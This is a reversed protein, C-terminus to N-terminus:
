YRKKAFEVKKDVVKVNDEVFINYLIALNDATAGIAWSPGMRKVAKEEKLYIVLGDNGDM